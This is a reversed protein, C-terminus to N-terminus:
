LPNYMFDEVELAEKFRDLIQQTTLVPLKTLAKEIDANNEPRSFHLFEQSNLIFPYSAM